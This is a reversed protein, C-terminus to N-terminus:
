RFIYHPHKELLESKFNDALEAGREMLSFLEPVFFGKVSQCDKVRRACHKYAATVELAADVDRCDQADVLPKLMAEQGQGELDKLRNRLGALYEENPSGDPLVIDKYAVQIENMKTLEM